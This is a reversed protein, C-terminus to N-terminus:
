RDQKRRDDTRMKTPWPFVAESRHGQDDVACVGFIYNDKSLPITAETVKGVRKAFQWQPATTERWVVLYGDLDPETNPSWRLTTDTTLQETVMTVEKPTAPARALSALAAVNVRTVNGVYDFDVFEPLDGYQVGNEQRVDQHQHRYDEHYETFRVAPYGELSFSKHDGGRLYRDLRAVLAVEFGDVYADCAQSIHRALQRAPSDNEGGIRQRMFAVDEPENLPMGESFVRVRRAERQGRVSLTNGIIDNTFMGAIPIGNARAQRAAHKSGYLGQEEGAVAMFIITADFKYGAMVRAAELVAAVGTADDDAGPAESEYDAANSPISDYHGSVIYVRDASVPTSGPLTAVVNIIEVPKVIRRGDPPQHYGDFEVTLRDGTARSIERFQDSIWRRAAGIGRTDSETESVTHRTGFGVLSHVDSKIRDVDVARVMAAIEADVPMKLTGEPDAALGCLVISLFRAIAM